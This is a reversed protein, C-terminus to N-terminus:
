HEEWAPGQYRQAAIRKRQGRGLAVPVDDSEDKAESAEANGSRPIGGDDGVIFNDAVSSRGSLLHYSLVGLPVDCDNYLTDGYPEEVDASIQIQDASESNLAAHLVEKFVDIRCLRYQM